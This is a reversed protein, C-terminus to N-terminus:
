NLIKATDHVVTDISKPDLKGAGFAHNVKVDSKVWMLVTVDAKESLKYDLPGLPGDYITLPVNTIHNKKAIAKLKKDAKDPDDTILVVFAKLAKDKNKAVEADVKTVLSTVSDDLKRTFVAVVPSSGYRCRYCLKDGGAAPGTSDQVLFAPPSDGPKLGSQVEDASASRGSLAWGFLATATLTTAIAFSKKM